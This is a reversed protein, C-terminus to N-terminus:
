NNGALPRPKPNKDNLHHVNLTNLPSHTREPPDVLEIAEPNYVPEIEIKDEKISSRRLPTTNLSSNINTNTESTFSSEFSSVTEPDQYVSSFSAQTTLVTKDSPAARLNMKMHEGDPPKRDKNLESILEPNNWPGIDDLLTGKSKGGLYEPISDEDIWM